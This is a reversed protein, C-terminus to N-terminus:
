TIPKNEATLKEILARAETLSMTFHVKQVLQPAILKGFDFTARTLMGPRVIVRLDINPPVHSNAYILAPLVVRPTAIIATRDFISHVQHPVSKALREVEDTAAYYDKLVVQGSYGQWIITQTEDDWKVEVPM